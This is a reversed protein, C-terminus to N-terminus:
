AAKHLIEECLEITVDGKEGLGTMEHKILRAAIEPIREASIDYDSLHTALGLSEFFTVTKAIAMDIIKNDNHGTIGWVRKAYQLLKEKKAERRVSMTAPLIIALTEAHALGYLATLEHGIIHTSWDQPVGSGIVGNLAMAACWMMNARADYDEPNNFSKVGDEILTQLISEAFRDQLPANVPYTLYQEIVHCFSDVIGNAVQVKPLSLTVSPDLVAFQPFVEDNSFGLKENEVMSQMAVAGANIQLGGASPLSIVRVKRSIVAHQNMESGTAPLTLVCGFPLANRIGKGQNILIEWPDGLEWNAAASIFKTGDIVSGGGVALLFSIRENKVLEIAQMLTEYDPNPQIGGFEFITRNPLAAKVQDMTGNKLVSGGGYVILIRADSPIEQTIRAIQGKGFLVKTPNQFEFNLMYDGVIM